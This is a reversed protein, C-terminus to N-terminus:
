SLPLALFLPAIPISAGSVPVQVQLPPRPLLGAPLQLSSTADALPLQPQPPPTRSAGEGQGAGAQGGRGVRGTSGM